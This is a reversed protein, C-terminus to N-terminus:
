ASEGRPPGSQPTRRTTVKRTGSCQHAAQRPHARQKKRAREEEAEPAAARAVKTPRAREAREPATADTAFAKQTAAVKVEGRENALVVDGEHVLVGVAITGMALVGAGMLKRRTAENMEMVEVEFRTGAVTVNAAGTVVTLPTGKPVEYTM